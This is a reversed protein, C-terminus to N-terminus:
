SDGHKFGDKWTKKDKDWWKKYKESIAKIKEKILRTHERFEEIEEKTTEPAQYKIKKKGMYIDLWDCGSIFFNPHGM